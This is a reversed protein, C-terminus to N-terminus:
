DFITQSIQHTAQPAINIEPSINASEICLMNLYGNNPFDQMSQAKSIWPNWVVVNHCNEQTIHITPKSTQEIELAQKDAQYIRDVEQTVIIAESLDQMNKSKLQDFFTTNKLGKIHTESIDNVSFYSHLAESIAFPESGTNHTTLSVKLQQGVTIDVVLKFDYPFLQKSAPTSVLSLQANINGDPLNTITDLAFQSIRAFGHQPLEDNQPHKGFWPWCIPIGGRIAKKQNLETLPSLWLLDSQDNPIFSVVQAGYLSIEAYSHNSKIRLLKKEIEYKVNDKYQELVSFIKSNEMKRM